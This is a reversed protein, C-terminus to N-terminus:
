QGADKGNEPSTARRQRYLHLLKTTLRQHYVAFHQEDLERLRGDYEARLRNEQEELASQVAQELKEQQYQPEYRIIGSLQQLLRWQHKKVRCLHIVRESAALRHRRGEDDVYIVYPRTKTQEEEDLDLYDAVTRWQDGWESPAIESFDHQYRAEYMAWDAPTLRYKVRTVPTTATVELITEVWDAEHDPNASLDFREGYFASRQPAYDLLPFVRTAVARQHQQWARDEAIGQRYPENADCFIFSAERAAVAERIMRITAGHHGPSTQLTRINEWGLAWLAPNFADDPATETAANVVVTHIPKRSTSWQGFSNMFQKDFGGRDMFIVVAPCRSQEAASLDNWGNAPPAAAPSGELLATAERMHNFIPLAQRVFGEFMGRAQAMLQSSDSNLWPYAFPNYPYDAMWSLAGGANFVMGLVSAGYGDGGNTLTDRDKKLKEILASYERLKRTRAKSSKQEKERSTILQGIGEEASDLEHLRQFFDDFSNLDVAENLLNQVKVELRHIKDNLEELWEQRTPQLATEMASLTLHVATKVGSGPLGNDGGPMSLYATRNILRYTEQNDTEIFDEFESQRNEPLGSMLEFQRKYTEIIDPRAEIRELAQDPCISICAGCGKCTYPNIVISLLRGGGRSEQEPREYFSQSKVLPFGALFPLIGNFESRLEEEKKEDAQLKDMLFEFSQEFLAGADRMDAPLSDKLRKDALKILNNQLRSLQNLSIDEEGARKVAAQWLDGATFIVTPLASEPCNAWCLGCATCNEAHFEPIYTHSPSLDRFTSTRAPVTETAIMPDTLLTEQRRERYLYGVTDWFYSPDFVTKDFHGHRNIAWPTKLTDAEKLTEYPPRKQWDIRTTNERGEVFARTLAKIQGGGITKKLAPVMEETEGARSAWAGLLAMMMLGAQQSPTRAAKLAYDTGNVTLLTINKETIRKRVTQPLQDWTQEDSFPSNIILTGEKKLREVGDVYRVDSALIYDVEDAPFFIAAPNGAFVHTEVYPLYASRKEIRYSRVAEARPFLSLLRGFIEPNHGVSANMMIHLIDKQPLPSHTIRALTRELQPYNRALRQQLGQLLPFRSLETVATVMPYFDTAAEKQEHHHLIHQIANATLRMGQLHATHVPMGPKLSGITERLQFADAWDDHNLLTLGRVKQLEQQLKQSPFPALQSLRIVRGKYAVSALNRALWGGGLIAHSGKGTSHTSQCVRGFHDAFSEFARDIVAQLASDFYIDRASRAQQARDEELRAHLGLPQSLSLWQPLRRHKKGLMLARAEDEAEVTEGPRGLWRRVEKEEVAELNQISNANGRADLICLVPTLAKEAVWQGILALDQAEQVTSAYFVVKFFGSTAHIFSRFSSAQEKEACVLLPLPLYGSATLEAAAKKLASNPLYVASREGAAALGVAEGCGAWRTGSRSLAKKVAAEGSERIQIKTKAQKM